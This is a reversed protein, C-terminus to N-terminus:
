ENDCEQYTDIVVRKKLTLGNSVDTKACMGTTSLLLYDLKSSRSKGDLGDLISIAEESLTVSIAVTSM